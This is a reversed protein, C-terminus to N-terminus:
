RTKRELYYYGWLILSSINGRRNEPFYGMYNMNALNRLLGPQRM